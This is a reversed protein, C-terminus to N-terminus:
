DEVKIISSITKVMSQQRLLATAKNLSGAPTKQTVMVIEVDGEDLIRKEAISFLSINERSMIGSLTSFMGPEGSVTMRIYYKSSICEWDIVNAEGSCTCGIGNGNGLIIRAAELVDGLVASATPLGGAGQGYFTLTGAANGHVLVCNNAGSISALLHGAPLFVPSVDLELKDTIRVGTGLLKIEWGLEKGYIIDQIDIGTIGQTHIKQSTVRQGFAISSLIALKRATDLGEIDDTPDAEAYGAQQAEMLSQKFGKNNKSMSTLIYNGTGNLIGSIKEIKNAALCHKLPRIIPIAGAVSAEFFLQANGERAAQFIEQGYDAMVEKNATVVSKGSKLAKILYDKAPKTGGMLEIVIHIDPNSLVMDPNDTVADMPVEPGRQKGPNRVVIAKTEFEIGRTEKIIDSNANLVQLVGTGVTGMGLFGIGITNLTNM